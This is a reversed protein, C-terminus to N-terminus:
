TEGRAYRELERVVAAAAEPYPELARALIGHLERWAPSATVQEATTQSVEHREVLLGLLRATLDAAAVADRHGGEHMARELTAWITVVAGDRDAELERAVVRSAEACVTAAVTLSVGWREALERATKGRRFTGARMLEAVEDVRARARAHIPSASAHGAGDAPAGPPAGLSPPRRM